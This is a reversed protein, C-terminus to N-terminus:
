FLPLLYGVRFMLDITNVATVRIQSPVTTVTNIDNVRIFRDEPNADQQLLIDSHLPIFMFSFPIKGYLYGPGLKYGFGAALRLGLQFPNTQIVPNGTSTLTGIGFLQGGVSSTPNLSIGTQFMLRLDLGLEGIIVMSENLRFHLTAHIPLTLGSAIVNYGEFYENRPVSPSTAPRGYGHNTFGLSAGVGLSMNDSLDLLMFAADAEIALGLGASPGGFSVNLGVGGGVFFTKPQEVPETEVADQGIALGPVLFIVFALMQALRRSM